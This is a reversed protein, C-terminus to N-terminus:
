YKKPSIKRNECRIKFRSFPINAPFSSISDTLAGSKGFITIPNDFEVFARISRATLFEDVDLAQVQM